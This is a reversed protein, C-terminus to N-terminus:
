KSPLAAALAVAIREIGADDLDGAAGLIRALSRESELLVGNYSKPARFLPWNGDVFCLVATIPPMPAIGADTLARIVAKVQWEMNDALTSKDRGGVTLRLDTKFFGGRDVVQITGQYHKADVVFVGAPAVLVHDINGKTGKVRRDNLVILGPVGALAKGLLEEGKAGIGWARISQPEDVFRNIWGGVREGWRAKVDAERKAQRREYERRASAGAEGLALLPDSADVVAATPCEICHMKRLQRDWVAETGARLIRGCRSCPGDFKVIWGAM